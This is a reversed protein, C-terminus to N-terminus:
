CSVIIIRIQSSLIFLQTKRIFQKFLLATDRNYAGADIIIENDGFKVIPSDIYMYQDSKYSIPLYNVMYKIRKLYVRKSEEDGLLNYVDSIEQKHQMIFPPSIKEEFMVHNMIAEQKFGM